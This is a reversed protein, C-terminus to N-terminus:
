LLALSWSVTITHQRGAQDVLTVQATGPLQVLSAHMSITLSYKEGSGLSGTGASLAVAGNSTTASWSVPGGSASLQVQASRQFAGLQVTSASITLTGTPQSPTTSPSSPPFQRHSPKPSRSRGEPQPLFPVQGGPGSPMSPGGDLTPQKEHKGARRSLGSPDNQNQHGQHGQFPIIFPTGPLEPGFVMLVVMSVVLAGAVAGATGLWRKAM